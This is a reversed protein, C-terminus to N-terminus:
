LITMPGEYLVAQGPGPPRFSTREEDLALALQADSTCYLVRQEQTLDLIGFKRIVPDSEHVEGHADTDHVCPISGVVVDSEFDVGSVHGLKFHAALPKLGWKVGREECYGQYEYAVDSFEVAVKGSDFAWVGDYLPKGYKGVGGKPVILMGRRPSHGLLLRRVAMFPMDFESGNWTVISRIGSDELYFDLDYLIGSEDDESDFAEIIDGEGSVVAITVIRDEWPNLGTTEIDLAARTPDGM